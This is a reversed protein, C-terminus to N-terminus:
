SNQPLWPVLIKPLELEAVFVVRDLGGELTNRQKRHSTKSLEMLAEGGFSKDNLIKEVRWLHYYLINHVLAEEISM